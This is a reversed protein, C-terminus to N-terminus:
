NMGKMFCIISIMMYICCAGTLALIMGMSDSFDDILGATEKRCLGKSIAATIKLLLYQLGIRCFPTIWIALIVLLGSIGVANKMIGAGIVVAESADALMGGVVPVMGSITLKTAKVATQDATGSVVGTITMYTFFLYLSAKIIWTMMWKVSMKWKALMESELAAVGISLAVFIYLMPVLLFSATSTLLTDFVVTALYLAGASTIGGQAALATTIVPLLLKGYESIQQITEVGLTLLSHTQSLLAASVFLVSIWQISNGVGQGFSGALSILIMGAILSLCVGAGQALDPLALRIGDQIVSWLGQAFTEPEYPVLEQVSDPPAPASYEMANAPFSVSFLLLLIILIKRM